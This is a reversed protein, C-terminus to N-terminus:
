IVKSIKYTFIVKQITGEFVAAKIIENGTVLIPDTYATSNYNIEKGELTFLIKGKPSLTSLTVDIGNEARATTAKVEFISKSYNIKMRDYLYFHPM